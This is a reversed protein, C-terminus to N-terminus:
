ESLPSKIKERRKNRKQILKYHVFFRVNFISMSEFILLLRNFFHFLVKERDKRTSINMM